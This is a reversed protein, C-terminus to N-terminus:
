GGFTGVLMLTNIKMLMPIIAGKIVLRRISMFQGMLRGRFPLEKGKTGRWILRSPKEPLPAGVRDFSGFAPYCLPPM